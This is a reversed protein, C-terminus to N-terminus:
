GDARWRAVGMHYRQHSPVGSCYYATVITGDATRASSPYGVDGAGELDVLVRPTGWTEGGDGSLRAGVGRLGENRIGYVLLIHGDALHLLHAPHQGPLTLPCVTQWTGGGDDSACLDLHADVHTRVAALMTGGDLALLDTENGDEKIRSLLRWSRGDDDSEYFYSVDLEPRNSSYASVGLRDGPLRVVDGFPIPGVPEPCDAMTEATEWERGGDSSRCVLPALVKSDGFSGQQGKPPRNDWGSALVILADDHALGAAVNMRNAGPDHSAPVGRLQWTCGDDESAWCEVDGEWGGHTPQNFITAIIAGDPMLTLNPWACVNDVAIYRDM